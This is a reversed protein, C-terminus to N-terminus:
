IELPGGLDLFEDPWRSKDVDEDDDYDQPDDLSDLLDNIDIPEGDEDLMETEDLDFELLRMGRENLATFEAEALANEAAARLEADDSGLLHNLAAVADKTGIQGLSLIAAQRIEVDHETVLRILRPVARKVGIEGAARVAEFRLAAAQSGLEKMVRRTWRGDASRGMAFLASQRMSEHGHDYAQQIIESVAETNVFGLAEVARRAVDLDETPDHFLGMLMQRLSEAVDEDIELMEAEYVFRGLATVTAARVLNSADHRAIHLLKELLKPNEAEWLGSVAVRRIEQDPSDLMAMLLDGFDVDFRSDGESVLARVIQRQRELDIDAMAQTFVAVQERSPSSLGSLLDEGLFTETDALSAVAQEFSIRDVPGDGFQGLM